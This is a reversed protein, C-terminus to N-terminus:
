GYTTGASQMQAYRFAARPEGASHDFGRGAHGPHRAALRQRASTKRGAPILVQVFMAGPLGLTLMGIAFAAGAAFCAGRIWVWWQDSVLSGKAAYLMGLALISLVVM